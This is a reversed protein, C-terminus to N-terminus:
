ASCRAQRPRPARRHRQQAPLLPPLTGTGQGCGRAPKVGHRQAPRRGRFTDRGRGCGGRRPRRPAPGLATGTAHRHHPCQHRLPHGNPRVGRRHPVPAPRLATGRRQHDLGLVTGTGTEHRHRRRLPLSRSLGAGADGDSDPPTARRASAPAGGGDRAIASVCLRAGHPLTGTGDAGPPTARPNSQAGDGERAMGSCGTASDHRHRQGHLCRHRSHARGRGGPSDGQRHVPTGPMPVAAPRQM